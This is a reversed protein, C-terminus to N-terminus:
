YFNFLIYWLNNDFNLVATHVDDMLMDLIDNVDSRYELDSIIIQSM